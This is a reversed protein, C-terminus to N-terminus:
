ADKSSAPELAEQRAQHREQLAQLVPNRSLSRQFQAFLEPGMLSRATDHYAMFAEVWAARDTSDEGDGIQALLRAAAIGDNVDVQLEGSALREYTARVVERALSVHDVLDDVGDQIDRGIETARRELLRRMVEVQLPLHGAAYHSRINHASVGSGAPLHREISAYTNGRVISMEIDLRAPSACVLCGPASHLTYNEGGLRYTVISAAAQRASV